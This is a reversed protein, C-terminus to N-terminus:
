RVALDAWQAAVAGQLDDAPALFFDSRAIHQTRQGAFSPKAGNLDTLDIHVLKGGIHRHVALNGVLGHRAQVLPADFAFAHFHAAYALRIM